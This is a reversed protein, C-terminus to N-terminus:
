MDFDTHIDQVNDCSFLVEKLREDLDCANNHYDKEGLEERVNFALVEEDISFKAHVNEKNGRADLRIWRGISDIYVTNLAHIIYGESDDEDARTLKQYCIGAPVNM